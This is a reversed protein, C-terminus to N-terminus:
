VVGRVSIFFYELCSALLIINGPVHNVRFFINGSISHFVVLCLELFTHYHAFLCYM